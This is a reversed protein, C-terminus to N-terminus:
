VERWGASRYFHLNWESASFETDEADCIYGNSHLLFEFVHGPYAGSSAPNAAFVAATAAVILTRTATNVLRM